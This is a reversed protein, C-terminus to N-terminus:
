WVRGFSWYLYKGYALVRRVITAINRRARTYTSIIMM